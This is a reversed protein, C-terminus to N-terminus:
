KLFNANYINCILPKHDSLKINDVEYEYIFDSNKHILIYDLIQKPRKVSYTNNYNIKKFNQSIIKYIDETPNLNLDGCLICDDNKYKNVINLFEEVQSNRSNKYDLHTNFININKKFFPIYVQIMQIGRKENYTNYYFKKYDKILYRSLICIGYEGKGRRDITKLYRSYFNIKKFIEECINKECYKSCKDVEQLCVIDTKKKYIYDILSELDSEQCSKINFSIIKIKQKKKKIIYEMNYLINM